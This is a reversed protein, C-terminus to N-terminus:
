TMCRDVACEANHEAAIGLNKFANPRVEGTHPGVDGMATPRARPLDDLDEIVHQQEIGTEGNGFREDDTFTGAHIRLKEDVRQGFAGRVAESEARMRPPCHQVVIVRSFGEGNIVGELIQGVRELNSIFGPHFSAGALENSFEEISRDLGSQAILVIRHHLFQNFAVTSRTQVEPGM